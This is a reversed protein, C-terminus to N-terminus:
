GGWWAASDYTGQGRFPEGHFGGLMFFSRPDDPPLAKIGLWARMLTELGTKDGREYDAQIDTISRRLRPEPQSM